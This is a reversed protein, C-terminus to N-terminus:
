VMQLGKSRLQDVPLRYFTEIAEETIARVVVLVLEPLVLLLLVLHFVVVNVGGGLPPLLCLEEAEGRFFIKFPNFVHVCVCVSICVTVSGEDEVLSSSLIGFAGLFYFFFVGCVMVVGM